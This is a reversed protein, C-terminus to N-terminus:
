PKNFTISIRVKKEENNTLDQLEALLFEKLLTGDNKSVMVVPMLIKNGSLDDGMVIKDVDEQDSNDAIILMKGAKSAGSAKKVFTCNGREM